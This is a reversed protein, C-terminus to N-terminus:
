GAWRGNDDYNPSGAFGSARWVADFAPRLNTAVDSDLDELWVPLVNVIERDIPAGGGRLARFEPGGLYCGKVGALSLMVVLPGDLGWRKMAVLYDSCARIVNGEFATSALWGRGEEVDVTEIAGSSFVQIYRRARGAKDLDYGLAGDLNYRWNCGGGLPLPWPRMDTISTAPGARSGDFAALPVVHLIVRPGEALPFSTDGAAVLDVREFRFRRVRETAQDSALFASRIEGVDLLYKGASNRSYFRSADQFSVMHPALWSRRIQAAFVSGKPFGAIAAFRVHPIRPAIGSRVVNEMWQIQEDPNAAIGQPAGAKATKKGDQDRAEEIGSLLYGGSANAFSSVDALFEKKDGDSRGPLTLKFDLVRSERAGEAVLEEIDASTLKDIPKDFDVQV